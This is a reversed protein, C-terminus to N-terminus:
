RIKFMTNVAAIRCRYLEKAIEMGELGQALIAEVDVARALEFAKDFISRQEYPRKELGQRGRADAECADLFQIFREPRRFADVQQLLKVIESASLGLADHVVNHFRSVLEALAYYENPVRLRECFAGIVAVGAQEHGEHAPWDVKETLTKGVDHMLVSFRVPMEYKLKAATDLALMTHVGSDIEPHPLPMNPVGFLADLEPFLVELAGCRRLVQFYRSPKIESLAKETEKWVREPTLDNLEGTSVMRRMLQNTEPAVTFGLVAYRAAFRAVRLVRLPDESFAASIHRLLRNKIDQRGGYPDVLKGNKAKAIANITLDRRQLDEELTVNPDAFCEFGTYGKGVKRETRALAYEEGSEPHLFVPFDKGVQKYGQDLMEKPTAGVVVWDQELVPRNLLQERVAGGVLYVKL